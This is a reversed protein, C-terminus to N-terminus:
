SLTPNGIAVYGCCNSASSVAIKVRLVGTVNVDIPTTTGFRVEKSLVPASNDLSISVMFVSEAKQDDPVGLNGIFHTYSRGANIQVSGPTDSAQIVLANPYSVGNIV